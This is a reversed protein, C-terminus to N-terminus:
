AKALIAATKFIKLFMPKTLKGTNTNQRSPHYTDLLIHPSKEFRHVAGHGFPFHSLQKPKTEGEWMKFRLKLYYDHAIKGLAVIVKVKRLLKLETELYSACTTLEKPTPKNQPPACRAIATIYCNRLKLGDGLSVATPQSVLGAEYLVPYLFDGSADGTFMRGTRNSGFRGPALGILLIAANVDGFSPVPKCWYSPYKQQIGELYHVLRPCRRCQVIKKQLARLPMVPPAVVQSTM